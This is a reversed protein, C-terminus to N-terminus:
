GSLTHWAGILQSLGIQGYPLCKEFRYLNPSITKHRTKLKKFGRLSAKLAQKKMNRIFNLFIIDNFDRIIKPKTIATIGNNKPTIYAAKAIRSVAM